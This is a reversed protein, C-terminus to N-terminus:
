RLVGVRLRCKLRSPAGSRWHVGVERVVEPANGMGLGARWDGVRGARETALTVDDRGHWTELGRRTSRLM